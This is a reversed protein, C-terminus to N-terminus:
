PQVATAQLELGDRRGMEAIGTINYHLGDVVIRDTAVVDNRYRIQWLTSIESNVQQAAFFEQGRLDRKGAWVTAYDAYTVVEDGSSSSRTLV